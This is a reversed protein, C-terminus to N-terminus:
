KISFMTMAHLVHKLYLALSAWMSEKFAYTKWDNLPRSSYATYWQYLLIITSSTKQRLLVTKIHSYACMWLQLTTSFEHQRISYVFVNVLDFRFSNMAWELQCRVNYIQHYQVQKSNKSSILENSISVCLTMQDTINITIITETSLFHRM